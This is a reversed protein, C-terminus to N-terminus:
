AKWFSRGSPSYFLAPPSFLVPQSRIRSSGAEAEFRGWTECAAIINKYLDPSYNLIGYTRLLKFSNWYKPLLCDAAQAKRRVYKTRRSVHHNFCLCLDINEWASRQTRNSRYFRDRPDRLPDQLHLRGVGLIQLSQLSLLPLLFVLRTLLLLREM